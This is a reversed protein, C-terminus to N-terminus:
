ADFIIRLTLDSFDPIFVCENNSSIMVEHLSTNLSQTDLMATTIPTNLWTEIFCKNV